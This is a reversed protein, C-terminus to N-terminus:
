PDFTKHKLLNYSTNPVVSVKSIRLANLHGATAEPTGLRVALFDYQM